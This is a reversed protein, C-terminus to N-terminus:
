EAGADLADERRVSGLEGLDVEGLIGDAAGLQSLLGPHEAERLHEDAVLDDAAEGLQM